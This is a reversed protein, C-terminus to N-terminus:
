HVDDPPRLGLPPAADAGDPASAPAIIQINSAIKGHHAQWRERRDALRDCEDAIKLLRVKESRKLSFSDAKRRTELAVDRWFKPDRISSSM